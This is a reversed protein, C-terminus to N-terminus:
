DRSLTAQTISYGETALEELLEEQSGIVQLRLIESIVKLRERKNKM